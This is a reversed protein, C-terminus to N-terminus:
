AASPFLLGDFSWDSPRRNIVVQGCENMDFSITRGAVWPRILSMTLSSAADSLACSIVLEHIADPDHITGGFTDPYAFFELGKETPEYQLIRVGRRLSPSVANFIPNGESISPPLPEFWPHCWGHHARVDSDIEQWRDIWFREVQVYVREDKLFNPFFHKVM